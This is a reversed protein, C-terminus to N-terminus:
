RKGISTTGTHSHRYKDRPAEPPYGYGKDSLRKVMQLYKEGWVGPDFNTVVVNYPLNIISEFGKRQALDHGGFAVQVEAETGIGSSKLKEVLLFIMKEITYHLKCMSLGASYMEVGKSTSLKYGHDYIPYVFEREQGEPSDSLAEPLILFPPSILDMTPSIIYLSFDAWRWLLHYITEILVVPDDLLARQGEDMMSPNDQESRDDPEAM